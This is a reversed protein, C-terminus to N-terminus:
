RSSICMGGIELGSSHITDNKIFQLILGFFFSIFIVVIAGGHPSISAM